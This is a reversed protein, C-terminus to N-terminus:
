EGTVLGIHGLHHKGHWAYLQLLLDLTVPGMEPHLVTRSFDGEVLSRLHLVWRKHLAELLNLSVEVPATRAEMTEAWAAEDYTRITPTDETMALKFRMYANLHSDPIHHVVQRVSWGGERYPTDLEAESLSSVVFRLDNPFHALEEILDAREQPTIGTKSQFRGTPYRLREPDTM